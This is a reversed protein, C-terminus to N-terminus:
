APLPTVPAMGGDLADLLEELAHCLRRFSRSRTHVLNLDIHHTLAAQHRTPKYSSHSMRASLWEKAGRISEFDIPANESEDIGLQRRIEHGSDESLSGIFWTEYESHPCVVSIPVNANRRRAEDALSAALEVPCSDTDTDEVILIGDCGERLAYGIM